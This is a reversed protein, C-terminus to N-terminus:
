DERYRFIRFNALSVIILMITLTISMAAARGADNQGIGLAVIYAVVTRTETGPAGQTILYSQGFMNASALITTTIVFLLVPRLGPLTVHRFKDRATAGDM